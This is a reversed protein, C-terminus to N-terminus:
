YRQNFWFDRTTYKLLDELKFLYYKNFTVFDVNPEHILSPYNLITDERLIILTDRNDQQWIVLSQKKSYLADRESKKIFKWLESNKKWFDTITIKNYGKKCEICFKFDQPTILDGYIKLHDPLNHTTAFAGSGTTRMFDTTNFHTNFIKSIKNEFANGKTRSNVRKKKPRLLNFDDTREGVRTM